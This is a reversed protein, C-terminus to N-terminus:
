KRCTDEKWGLETARGQWRRRDAECTALKKELARIKDLKNQRHKRSNIGNRIRQAGKKDAMDVFHIQRDPVMSQFLPSKKQTVSKGPPQSQATTVPNPTDVVVAPPFAPSRMRSTVDPSINGTSVASTSPTPKIAPLTFMPTPCAIDGPFSVAFPNLFFNQPFATPASGVDVVSNEASSAPNLDLPWAVRKLPAQGLDQCATDQCPDELPQFVDLYDLPDIDGVLSLPHHHYQDHSCYSQVNRQDPYNVLPYSRPSPNYSVPSEWASPWQLHDKHHTSLRSNASSTSSQPSRWSATQRFSKQRTMPDIPTEM